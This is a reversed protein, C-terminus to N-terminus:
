AQIQGIGARRWPSVSDPMRKISAIRFGASPTQLYASVVAAIVAAIEEDVDEASVPVATTVASEILAKESGTKGFVKLTALVAWLLALVAFVMLMGVITVSMGTILNNM